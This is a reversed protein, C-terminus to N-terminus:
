RFADIVAAGVLRDYRSGPHRHYTKVTYQNRTEHKDGDIFYPDREGKPDVVLYRYNYSGQKLPVEARYAQSDRDYSMRFREGPAGQSLEGDIYVEADILQPMQLTFHVTVYDAGLDSDSANYERVIFRGNQTQDYAYQRERMPRDPRLWAHYGPGVYKVSDVNLGPYDARVTEFRHYENGARFILPQLHEYKLQTGEVRQPHRLTVVGDPMINQEVTVIVDNYLDRVGAQTADVNLTLQQWDSNVGRDTHADASGSIEMVPECVGFRAQLLVNEPESEDYVQLLYNGSVLPNVNENPFAIRYNTFHIFTNNSFAYDDIPIDNFSDLYESEVLMSPTWDANCHVLRYRLFDRDERMRDFTVTIQRDGGLEIVPPAFFDDAVQVKLSRFSPDAIRTATDDALAQAATAAVIAIAAIRQAVTM